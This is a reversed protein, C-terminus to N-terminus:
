AVYGFIARTHGLPTSVGPALNLHRLRPILLQMQTLAPAWVDLSMVALANRIVLVTAAPLVLRSHQPQEHSLCWMEALHLVRLVPSCAALDGLHVQQRVVM